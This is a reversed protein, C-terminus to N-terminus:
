SQAGTMFRRLEGVRWRTCKIGLKVPKPFSPELKARRWVTSEGADILAAVTRVPVLAADPLQDFHSLDRQM